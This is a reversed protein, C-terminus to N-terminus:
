ISRPAQRSIDPQDPHGQGARPALNNDPGDQGPAPPPLLAAIMAQAVFRGYYEASWGRRLVLLEYLEPSSYTWLIDAAQAVAIGPRLHGADFLARANVTMRELRAASIENLLDALEPDSAAAERALTLIPATRPAIETVFTGWATLTRRPDPETDRIRDSRQEAPEPDTGALGREVIARVLGPKGGFSKYITEVSVRARTAIAAVTTAAYGRSVFLEEAIGIVQDRAQRARERRGSSNYRRRTNVAASKREM